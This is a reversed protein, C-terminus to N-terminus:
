LVSYRQQRVACEKVQSSLRRSRTDVGKITDVYPIWGLWGPGLQWRAIDDAIRRALQVLDPPREEGYVLYATKM